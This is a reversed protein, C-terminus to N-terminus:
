LFHGRVAIIDSSPSWLLGSVDIGKVLVREEGSEVDYVVVEGKYPEKMDPFRAYALYRGTPSWTPYAADLGEPSIRTVGGSPYSVLYITSRRDYIWGSGNFWPPMSEIVMVDRDDYKKWDEGVSRSVVALYERTPSWAIRSLPQKFEALPWPEGGSASTVMLKFAGDKETRAFAMMSSDPSWAQCSDKPGGTVPRYTAGDTVWISSSYSDRQIRTVIFSTLEASPAVRPNSVLVLRYLDEPELGKKRTM